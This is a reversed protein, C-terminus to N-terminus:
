GIPPIIGHDALFGNLGEVLEMEAVEALPVWRADAADSGAIPESDGIVLAEFDLIVYNYGDAIRESYGVLAGCSSELGTEEFLERVVADHLQEGPELRGGPVSWEGVAPQHGRRILLLQDARRM